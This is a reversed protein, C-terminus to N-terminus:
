IQDLQFSPRNKGFTRGYSNGYIEMNKAFVKGCKM